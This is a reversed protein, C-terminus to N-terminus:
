GPGVFHPGGGPMEMCKTMELESIVNAEFEHYSGCSDGVFAGFVCGRAVDNFFM